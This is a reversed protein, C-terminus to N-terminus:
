GAPRAGSSAPWQSPASAERARQASAAVELAGHGQASQDLSDFSRGDTVLMELLPAPAWHEGHRAHFARIDALVRELGVLEVHKMPGGRWAPFGYGNVYIVDIDGARLAIGEALIRGGENVLSYVLRKVIEEGEIRRPRIGSEKRYADVLEAVVADPLPARSGAEYRYWGAGTKQGLRGLEYLRDVLSSGSERGETLRQQRIRWAVDIGALDSQAFPGMAMGFDRITADVEEPSAGETVLRHAETRYAKLMRNGVFGHCNGVLVALKGITRSAAFATAIVEKSTHAGRVVEVLRMVHAPSFFHMGIVDGPRLTAAAIRDIDLTSTNSALICGPRCVADLRRFTAEKASMEEFVAEIVLDANAFDEYATTPRILSTRRDQEEQTLRGRQVAGSYNKAITSLGRRLAQDSVDLLSVAVGANAFCMAIGGGMTGAGVVGVSTIRRATAAARIDPIKAAQREAFFLHILARSQEHQLCQVFLERERKLGAEFSLTFAAEVADVCRQPAYQGRAQRRIERRKAAFVEAVAPTWAIREQLDRARPHKDSSELKTALEVAAIELNGSVIADVIGLARANSASVPGGGCIMELAVEAGVFRPLRQTGGGGPLLGLKVEPFGVQATGLAVRYHCALATELGGGFASGHIAAVIAKSSSDFVDFIENIDPGAHPRGLETIDAGAIFTRGVGILVLACAQDDAIGERVADLLGQCVTRSMANVPPNNVTVWGVSGRREYRVVQNM